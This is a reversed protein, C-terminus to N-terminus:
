LTTIIPGNVEEWFNHLHHSTHKFYSAYTGSKKLALHIVVTMQSTVLCPVIHYQKEFKIHIYIAVAM